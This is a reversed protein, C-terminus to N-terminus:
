LTRIKMNGSESLGILEVHTITNINCAEYPMEAKIYNETFGFMQMNKKSSEWLIHQHQGINKQYFQKHKLASLQHLRNSRRQIEPFGVPGSIALADTHERESYSFVHIFSIDQSEIFTYSDEFYKESEGRMGVIVDCGVFSLPLYKKITRIRDAFIETTYRRRMLRLM